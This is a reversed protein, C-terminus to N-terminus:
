PAGLRSSQCDELPVRLASSQTQRPTSVTTSRLHSAAAALSGTWCQDGSCCRGGGVRLGRGCCCVGAVIAVRATRGVSSTRSMVLCRCGSALSRSDRVECRKLASRAGNERSSRIAIRMLRSCRHVYCRRLPFYPTAVFIIGRGTWVFRWRNGHDTAKGVVKSCFSANWGRLFSSTSKTSPMSQLSSAYARARARSEELKARLVCRRLHLLMDEVAGDM